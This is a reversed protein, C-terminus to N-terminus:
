VQRSLYTTKVNSCFKDGLDIVRFERVSTIMNFEPDEIIQNALTDLNIEKCTKLSALGALM